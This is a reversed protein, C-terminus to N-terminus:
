LFLLSGVVDVDGTFQVAHLGLERATQINDARDDVFLADAPPAGIRDLMVRYIEPEPKALQVEYSVVVADFFADIERDARIRSVIEPVGNSLMGLKGGAQRFRAALTWMPERYDTWSDVDVAILSDVITPDLDTGLDRAVLAWYEASPLGLDYDRRHRWYVADLESAPAGLQTALLAMGGPRMPHSLVEGYDLILAAPRTM